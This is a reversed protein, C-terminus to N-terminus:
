LSERECSPLRIVFVSGGEPPNYARLTGGHLEVIEKSIPLGLGSGGSSSHRSKDKKYFRDFIHPLDDPHIGTGSDAVSIEVAHQEQLATLTITISGDMPTYRFANYLLNAFVRDMRRVDISVTVAFSDAGELLCDFRIGKERTEMSYQELIRERWDSLSLVDRSLEVRRAELVSLEFLDQILSNLGDLKSLMLRITAERHQPETIVNDRLAELYGQLLTMPTRLDHSINSVLQRRSLEVRELEETRQAIREELSNNLETLEASVREAREYTLSFRQSIIFSNMVVLFLLGFPVLDISRWWGNYFLIDNIITLVLGAVGILALKAGERRRLGSVLLAALTGLSVILVYIQYAALWSTFVLSPFTLACIILVVALVASFKFWGRRIEQPYMMHFYGFGCLAASIFATYECRTGWEWNLQPVWQFLFGEGIVGMRLAVFLCLLAFLLNAYEHRRLVYLGIHYFGIMLLCGFVILEQAADRIQLKQIQDTQGAILETRIGGLRHDFNAVVLKLHTQQTKGDVYVTAPMQFPITSRAEQGIKGRSLVLQEDIYLDYATSVNPVRIALLEQEARHLITLQYIGIGQDRIQVGNDAPVSGWTAPVEIATPIATVKGAENTVLWSFNWQGNLPVVGDENWAWSRLDILGNKARPFESDSHPAAIACGRIFAMLCIVMFLWKAANSIFRHRLKMSKEGRIKGHHVPNNNNCARVDNYRRM